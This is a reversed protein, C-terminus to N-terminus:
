GEDTDIIVLAKPNFSDQDAGGELTRSRFSTVLDDVTTHRLIPIIDEDGGMLNEFGPFFFFFFPLTNKKQLEKHKANIKKALDLTLYSLDHFPISLHKTYDSYFFFLHRFFHNYSYVYPTLNRGSNFHYDNFKNCKKEKVTYASTITFGLCRRDFQTISNYYDKLVDDNETLHNYFAYLPFSKKDRSFDILQLAQTPKLANYSSNCNNGYLRKSQIFLRIYERRKKSGIALEFDYGTQKEVDSSIMEIKDIFSCNSKALEKLAMSTLAEERVNHILHQTYSVPELEKWIKKSARRLTEELNM